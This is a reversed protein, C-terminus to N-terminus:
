GDLGFHRYFEERSLSGLDVDNIGSAAIALVTRIDNPANEPAARSRSKAKSVYRMRPPAEVAM